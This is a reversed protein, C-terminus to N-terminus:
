VSVEGDLMKLRESLATYRRKGEANSVMYSIIEKTGVIVVMEAARTVATYLLNRFLLPQAAPPLALIVIPFENGQSKHVTIAYSLELDGLASFPYEVLRDDDFLILMFRDKVSIQQIIGMDGNYIGHGLQDSSTHRCYEIDYNNKVQMVKDGTRFVVSGYLYESKMPDPPNVLSQLAANLDVTGAAGRRTPTLVQISEASDLGYAKPLRKSYLEAVTKAINEAPFREMFFFDRDRVSLEPMKGKNILHANTIILSEESQRFITELRIVPIVGSEIIDRLVNGAGVSPLQDADGVLILQAGPKIARLLANILPLDIMSAEDAIIVDADLPDNENHEFHTVRGDMKCGLLRHITKAEMGTVQSMRKAARGTPATLVVSRNFEEMLMIIMNITTTKGTGPGGTLAMCGCVAATEVALSQEPALEIGQDFAIEGVTAHLFERGCPPEKESDRLSLLRRATYFEAEYLWASYIVREGNATDAFVQKDGLLGAEAGKAEADTIHLGSIVKETLIDEPVYTHGGSYAANKLIWQIGARIRRMDNKAFGMSLAIGDATNFGVGEVQECIVYPNQRILTMAGEGLATCVKVAMNSTMGNKQLFVVTEAMSKTKKYAESAEFARATSFGKVGLALRKPDHELIDLSRTGFAAVIKTAMALRIGPLMGSSLYALIDDTDEPPSVEYNSVKLQPGYREHDSWEGEFRVKEGPSLYPMYGVAVTDEDTLTRVACITYGNDENRFIIEDVVGEISIKDM